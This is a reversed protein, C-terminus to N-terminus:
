SAPRRHLRRLGALKSASTAERVKPTLRSGKVFSEIRPRLTRDIGEAIATAVSGDMEEQTLGITKVVIARLRAVHELFQTERPDGTLCSQIIELTRVVTVWSELFDPPMETYDRAIMLRSVPTNKGVFYSAIVRVAMRPWGREEGSTVLDQDADKHRAKHLLLMLWLRLRLVDSPGTPRNNATLSDVYTAISAMMKRVDVPKRKKEGADVNDTRPAPVDTGAIETEGDENEEDLWSDDDDDSPATAPGIGILRNLFARVSDTYSGTLTSDQRGIGRKDPTKLQMFEEYTLEQPEREPKTPKKRGPRAATIEHRAMRDELDAQDLRDFSEHVWLDFDDSGAFADIARATAGSAAERRRGRLVSRQTVHAPASKFTGSEVTVFAARLAVDESLRFARPVSELVPDFALREVGDGAVDRLVLEGSDAFKGPPHWTMVHGEVEFTGPKLSELRDLPIDPTLQRPGIDGFEIPPQELCALLELSLAGDNRPVRRYICAEANRGFQRNGLAATSCNASGILIHDHTATSAIYVKAHTFRREIKPPLRRFVMREPRQTDLPFQHNEPDIFVTTERPSLEQAFADLAALDEDWYPSVILLRDVVENGIAAFYRESIGPLGLGGAFFRTVTGDALEGLDVPEEGALWPTRAAAWDLGDRAAGGAGALLGSLYRWAARVVEQEPGPEDTCEIEFIAEANGAMGSATVNASGVFLRGSKRGLQLLIKPHFLGSETPVTVMEYDRGLQMPLMTGDSLSMTAMRGDAVLLVNTAGSAMLQPLMIEELAAFEVAFTTAFASHFPRTGRRGMREPYKM